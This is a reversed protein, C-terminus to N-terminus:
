IPLASFAIFAGIFFHLRLELGMGIFKEYRYGYQHKKREKKRREKQDSKQGVTNIM